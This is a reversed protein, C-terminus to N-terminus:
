GWLEKVAEDYDGSLREVEELAYQVIDPKILGHANTDGDTDAGAAAACDWLGQQLRLCEARLAEISTEKLIERYLM